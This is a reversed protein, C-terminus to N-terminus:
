LEHFALLALGVGILALAISKQIITGKGIRERIISPFKITLFLTILFLFFYQIGALANVFPLLGIPTLAVALHQLIIAAAALIQGLLVVATTKISLPTKQTNNRRLFFKKVTSRVDAFVFLTLAAAVQGVSMWILASVFPEKEFVFKSFVFSLAFFFAAITAYRLSDLTIFANKQLTIGITGLILLVFALFEKPVLVDKEGTLFLVFLLTFIPIIGGLASIIRSAEFKQLGSFLAFIAYIRTAGAMLAFLIIAGDPITAFGFPILVFILASLIGVIFSFMRPNPLPGVLVYKDVVSVLALITYSVVTVFIWSM